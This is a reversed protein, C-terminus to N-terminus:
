EDEDAEANELEMDGALMRALTMKVAEAQEATVGDPLGERWSLAVEQRGGPTLNMSLRGLKSAADALRPVTDFRWGAPKVIVTKGDQQTEVEHLPSRVMDLAIRAMQRSMDWEMRRLEAEKEVFEATAERAQAGASWRRYLRRVTELIERFLPDHFWGKDKAYYVRRSVVGPLTFAVEQSPVTLGVQALALVTQRQKSLMSPRGAFRSLQAEVAAAFAEEDPLPIADAVAHAQREIEKAQADTLGAADRVQTM